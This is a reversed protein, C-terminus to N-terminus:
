NDGFIYEARNLLSDTLKYNLKKITRINLSLSENPMIITGHSNPKELRNQALAVIKQCLITNDKGVGSISAAAGSRTCPHMM